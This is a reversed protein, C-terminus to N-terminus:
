KGKMEVQILSDTQCGRGQCSDGHAMGGIGKKM